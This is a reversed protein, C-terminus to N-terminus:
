PSEDNPPKVAPSQPSPTTCISPDVNGFQNHRITSLENLAERVERSGKEFVNNVSVYEKKVRGYSFRGGTKELYKRVLDRVAQWSDERTQNKLSTLGDYQKLQKAHFLSISVKATSIVWLIMICVATASGAGVWLRPDAKSFVGSKLLIFATGTGLLTSLILGTFLSKAWFRRRRKQYNVLAELFHSLREGHTEIFTALNDLRNKPAKMVANRLEERQNELNKLYSKEGAGSPPNDKLVHPSYTLHITPIDKRGTMQSLNWCLTGYVKLLDVLSTCEDIRNLVFLMRDEFTRAPLTDRLSTHTERVTGAKHPDFLVLVLDAIQAFDGIVEQYNYGRDRETISDLM